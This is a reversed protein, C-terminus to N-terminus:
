LEALCLYKPRVALTRVEAHFPLFGGTKPCKVNFGSPSDAISHSSSARCLGEM